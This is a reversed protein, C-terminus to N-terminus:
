ITTIEKFEKCKGAIKKCKRANRKRGIGENGEMEKLKRGNGKIEKWQGYGEMEKMEEYKKGNGENRGHRKEFTEM